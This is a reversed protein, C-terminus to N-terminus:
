DINIVPNKYLVVIDGKFGYCSGDSLNVCQTEEEHDLYTEDTRIYLEDNFMFCDGSKLEFVPVPKRKIINM